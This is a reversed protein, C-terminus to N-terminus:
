SQRPLRLAVAKPMIDVVFHAGPLMEGDLCLEILDKSDIEVHRVQRYHMKHRAFPKTLHEGRRYLPMILMFRLLSMPKIVCLEILGDDNLAYPACRFEGGLQVGNALTGLLLFRRGIRKGDAVVRIRNFRGMLIARVISRMYAKHPDLGEATLENARAAVFSDFGFNCVNIAYSDNVRIIDVQRIEGQLMAKLSSFDRDPYCALFDSTSGGYKMIALQKSEFGVMGSAVENVIGDGGCAVFCVEESPHLDCYIRTFRTGDGVGITNYVEFPEEFSDLQQRLGEYLPQKDARGNLVFIYKM